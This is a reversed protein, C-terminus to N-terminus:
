SRDTHARWQRAQDVLQSFIAAQEPDTAATDEPHWQVGVAWGHAEVVAAEPVGDGARAVVRIGEGLRDLGQHHFCSATVPSNSLGFLEAESDFSVSHTFHRHHTPLDQVLTGGRAVNVIHLGRCIALLPMGLELAALASEIDAADQAPDVDYVSEHRTTDGYVAPDIDGGGPVLIGDFRGLRGGWGARPDDREGPLVSLPEGGAAWVAELLARSNVVARYRLASATDSYRGLIAIAPRHPTTVLNERITHVAKTTDCPQLAPHTRNPYSM